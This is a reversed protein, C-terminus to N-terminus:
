KGDFDINIGGVKMGISGDTLDITMNNGIGLTPDGQLDFGIEGNNDEDSSVTDQSSLSYGSYDDSGGGALLLLILILFLIAVFAIIGIFFM